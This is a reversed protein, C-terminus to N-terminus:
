IQTVLTSEMKWLCNWAANLWYTIWLANLTIEVIGSVVACSVGSKMVGINNSPRGYWSFCTSKLLVILPVLFTRSHLPLCFCTRTSLQSKHIDNAVCPVNINHHGGIETQPLLSVLGLILSLLIAIRCLNSCMLEVALKQLNFLIDLSRCHIDAFTWHKNIVRQFIAEAFKHLYSKQSSLCPLGVQLLGDCKECWHVAKM